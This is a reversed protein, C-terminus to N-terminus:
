KAAQEHTDLIGANMSGSHFGALDLSVFTYGIAKLSIVIEQRHEM